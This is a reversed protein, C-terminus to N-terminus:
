YPLMEFDLEFLVLVAVLVIVILLTDVSKVGRTPRRIAPTAVNKSLSTM